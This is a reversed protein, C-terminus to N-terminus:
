GEATLEFDAETDVSSYFLQIQDRMPGLQHRLARPAGMPTDAYSRPNYRFVLSM